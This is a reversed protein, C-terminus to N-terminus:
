LFVGSARSVIKSALQRLLAPEEYALELIRGNASLRNRVYEQIDDHTLNQLILGPFSRLARDLVLLPRSSVCVKVWRFGAVFKFFEAIELHDGSYEDLGDIFLCIQLPTEKQGLLRVFARKSQPLTWYRSLERTGIRTTEALVTPILERYDTLCQYLPARFLGTQSKQLENGTYWFFFSAIVM